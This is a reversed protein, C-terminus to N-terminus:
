NTRAAKFWMLEICAKTNKMAMNLTHCIDQLQRDCFYYLKLQNKNSGANLGHLRKYDWIPAVDDYGPGSIKIRNMSETTWMIFRGLKIENTDCAVATWKKESVFDCGPLKAFGDYKDYMM